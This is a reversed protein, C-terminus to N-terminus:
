RDFARVSAYVGQVVMAMRKYDLTSTTDSAAHYNPNRFFATDTVMVADYGEQWYNRHDSFDIGTSLVPANISFVPLQSGSQMAQKTQRVTRIQDLRSVVAIFNGQRPYFLGLLAAPFKQSGDADSFYGIMEL